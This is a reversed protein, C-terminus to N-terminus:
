LLVFSARLLHEFGIRFLSAPHDEKRSVLGTFEAMWVNLSIKQQKGQHTLIFADKSAPQAGIRVVQAFLYLSLEWSMFLRRRTHVKWQGILGLTHELMGGFLRTPQSIALDRGFMKEKTQQAVWLRSWAPQEQIVAYVNFGNAQGHRVPISFDFRPGGRM